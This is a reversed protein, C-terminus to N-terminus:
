LEGPVGVPVPQGYLDLVYFTTNAIPTGILVRQDGEIRAVSSWVTTETPGYMNWLSACRPLLEGALESPWAEGGCLIKLSQSGEWGAELLLRWTAPTAQMITADCGKMLAALRFGDAAVDSPAITVQAGVMLPLFLELGVIDFSLSTVSLLSDEITIGPEHEMAKLFNVLARHPIQVGKPQGTSGSTYLVYALDSDRRGIPSRARETDTPQISLADLCLIDVNQPRLRDRLSRQTLLVLPRCDELIFALRDQPYNPDLPVYAGGAKLIALLGVVMGLSREMCLGVRDDPGVGLLSLHYALQDAQENLERYTLRQQEYVVAVRDPTRLVQEEFLEHVRRDRPYDSSTKNWAGLIQRLEDPPLLDLRGVLAAPDDMASLLRLFRLQLCALFEGDYLAPNADFEVCWADYESQYVHVNLDDVPGRSLPCVTSHSGAFHLDYNFSRVSVCQGIFPRNIRRLDRRLDAIRYRQHRIGSRMKRRVQLALDKVRMDPQIDLRLPVVNTVMAPTQRSAPSMRATMLQGLVLDEVGTMRHIFIATNLTVFQPFTLEMDRAFNQLRVAEASPVYATRHLFQMSLPMTRISLSQPEPSGSMLDLWFQRDSKLHGSARYEADEEVLAALSGLPKCDVNSGAALASYVNAIRSAILSWGFGDMVLHHIRAYWLFQEPETKFLAFAFFPGRCMDLPQAIDTRMWAEATSVPDAAACVDQYTMCWGPPTVIVQMPIGDREVFHVCLAETEIVVHRLAIEFLEPDVAGFIKTYEGMNYASASAGAKLAYWVGLQAASLPLDSQM